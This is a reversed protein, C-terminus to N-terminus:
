WQHHLANRQRREIQFSELIQPRHQNLIWQSMLEGIIPSLLIGNRYHGTIVFLDRSVEDM